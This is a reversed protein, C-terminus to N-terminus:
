RHPCNPFVGCITFDRYQKQVITKDRNRLQSAQLLELLHARGLQLPLEDPSFHTFFPYDEYPGKQEIHTGLVHAVPVSSTFDVLRQVSAEFVDHDPVNIYLRGPYLVDGTLLVATQRDYVAIHTLDHGPVPIIDLIRGGLDYQVIDTPWHRIGFFSQLASVSGPPVFTTDPRSTFQPDGWIHDFHSHLHTVV